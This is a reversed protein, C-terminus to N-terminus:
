RRADRRNAHVAFVQVQPKRSTSPWNLRKDANLPMLVSRKPLLNRLCRESPCTSTAVQGTYRWSPINIPPQAEAVISQTTQCGPIRSWLLFPFSPCYLASSSIFHNILQRPGSPHTSLQLPAEGAAKSRWAEDIKADSKQLRRRANKCKATAFDHREEVYSSPNDLLLIMVSNHFHTISLAISVKGATFSGVLWEAHEDDWM